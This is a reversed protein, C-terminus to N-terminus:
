CTTAFGCSWEAWGTETWIDICVYEVRADPGCSSSGGNGTGTGWDVTEGGTYDGPQYQTGTGGGGAEEVAACDEGSLADPSYPDYAPDSVQRTPLDPGGGSSCEEVSGFTKVTKYSETVGVLRGLFYRDRATCKVEVEPEYWRAWGDSSVIYQGKTSAYGNYVAPKYRALSSNVPDLVTQRNWDPTWSYGVHWYGLLWGSVGGRLYLPCTTPRTVVYEDASIYEVSEQGTLAQPSLCACAIISALYIASWRLSDIVNRTAM